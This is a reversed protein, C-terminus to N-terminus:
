RAGVRFLRGIQGLSHARRDLRSLEFDGRACAHAARDTDSQCESRLVAGFDGLQKALCIPSHVPCLLHAVRNSM